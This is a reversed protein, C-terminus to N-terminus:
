EEREATVGNAEWRMCLRQPKARECRNSRECRNPQMKRQAGIVAETMQAPSGEPAMRIILLILQM